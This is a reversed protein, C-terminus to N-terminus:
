LGALKINMKAIRGRLIDANAALRTELRVIDAQIRARTAAKVIAASEARATACAVKAAFKAEKEAAKAAKAVAAASPVPEPEPEVVTAVVTGPATLPTLPEVSLPGAYEIIGDVWVGVRDGVTETAVDYDFVNSTKEDVMYLIGNVIHVGDYPTPEAVEAAAKAAAKAAKTEEKKARAYLKAAAKEARAYLKAEKEAAREAAAKEVAAVKAAAKATAIAAKEEAARAAKESISYGTLLRQYIWRVREKPHPDTAWVTPALRKVSDYLRDRGEAGCWRDLDAKDTISETAFVEKLTVTFKDTAM